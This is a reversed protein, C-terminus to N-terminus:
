YGRKAYLKNVDPKKEEKFSEQFRKDHFTSSKKHHESVDFSKNTAKKTSKNVEASKTNTQSLYKLSDEQSKKVKNIQSVNSFNKTQLKNESKIVNRQHYKKDIKKKFEGFSEHKVKDQNNVNRINKLSSVARQAGYAMAPAADHVGLKIRSKKEIKKNETVLPDGRFSEVARGVGIVGGAKNAFGATKVSLNSVPAAGTKFSEKLQAGMGVPTKMAGFAAVVPVTLKLIGGMIGAVIAGTHHQSNELSKVVFIFAQDVSYWIFPWLSLVLVLSIYATMMWRLRFLTSFLIIYAGLAIMLSMLVVYCFCVFWYILSAIMKLIEEASLGFYAELFTKEKEKYNVVNETGQNIVSEAIEPARMVMEMVERFIFFGVYLFLLDKLLSGYDRASALSAKAIVLRIIFILPVFELLTQSSGRFIAFSAEILGNGVPFSTVM